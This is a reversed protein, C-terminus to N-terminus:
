KFIRICVHNYYTQIFYLTVIDAQLHLILGHKKIGKTQHLQAKLAMDIRTPVQKLMRLFNDM